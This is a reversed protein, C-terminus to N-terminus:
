ERRMTANSSLKTSSSMVWNTPLWTVDSLPVRVEVRVWQGAGSKTVLAKFATDSNASQYGSPSRPDVQVDIERSPLDLKANKLVDDVETKIATYYNNPLAGVRAGSRAANNLLEVVMLARGVEITGMVIIFLWISILAFEVAAAGRRRRGHNRPRHPASPILM